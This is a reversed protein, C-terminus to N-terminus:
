PRSPYRKPSSSALVLQAQRRSVPPLRGLPDDVLSQAEETIEYDQEVAAAVDSWECARPIVYLWAPQGRGISDIGKM